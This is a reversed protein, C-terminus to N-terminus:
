QMVGNAMQNNQMQDGAAMEPAPPQGGGPAGQGIGMQAAIAMPDPPPTVDLYKNYDKVAYQESLDEVFENFKYFIVGETNTLTAAIQAQEVSAKQIGLLQTQYELYSQRKQDKSIPIMSDDDIDVRYEGQMDAPAVIMPRSENGVQTKVEEMQDLYQMANSAWMQGLLYMSQKFNDRMFGIKETAAETISKIGGATGATKDLDSDPVGSLYQPVTAGEIAQNVMDVVTTLQQPNPEPFKFQDPKEGNYQIEGGPQVIFDGELSNAEYLIMGDVSLNWNDVYHNFLDNIAAQLTECNEFLSEGYASFSKKRCYFPVIPFMGHWYADKQRRIEVWDARDGEGPAYTIIDKSFKDYCEYITVYDVTSDTETPEESVRNRSANYNNFNTDVKGAQVKSLNKYLGLDKLEQLPMFERIIVWPAKYFSRSHPAIFVNFFNVPEFDNHGKLTETVVEKTLDVNLEDEMIPRNKTIKKEVVWPAKAFGTGAITADLLTDSVKLKMPEGPANKYCHELYKEVRTARDLAEKSYGIYEEGTKPDIKGEYDGVPTVTFKPIINSLRSVLDWAKSGLIPIYVKSHWPAINETNFVAYLIDYFNAVKNFLPEQKTQAKEFRKKWIGPTTSEDRVPPKNKQKEM